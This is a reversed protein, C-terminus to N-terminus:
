ALRGTMLVCPGQFASARRFIMMCKQLNVEYIKPGILFLDTDLAACAQMMEAFFTDGVRSDQDLLFMVDCARAMLVEAGRNYAGALGGRNYNAIVQLGQTRLGEHLRLDPDPTNDIAVVDPCAASARALNGLFEETPCYLVFIVGYRAM